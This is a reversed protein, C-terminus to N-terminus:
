QLPIAIELMKLFTNENLKSMYVNCYLGCLLTRFDFAVTFYAYTNNLFSGLGYTNLIRFEAAKIAQLYLSPPPIPAVVVSNRM